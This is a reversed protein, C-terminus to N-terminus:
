IERSGAISADHRRLIALVEAPDGHPKLTLILHGEHLLQEYEAAEEEPVGLGVLAGALGGLAAGTAATVV